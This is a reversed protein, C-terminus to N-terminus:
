DKKFDKVRQEESRKCVLIRGNKEAVIYGDLGQLVVSKAESTQVVCNTCDYLNVNGVIANDMVDKQLLGYLSDWNGLDSWGFDAPITYICDSKEMVAYDISIKECTPFIRAVVKSEEPTGFSVAIEDMQICLKIAYKRLENVITDINWVFIGSNWYFRGNEVYEKATEMDPKERFSHVRFVEKELQEETAQIYGYGPEPRNPKVGITVISHRKANVFMLAKRIVRQFEVTDMVLADSPTVVVNAKPYNNKIKWCAYAICPATNRAAPEILINEKPIQPLHERVFDVYTQNTVVWIHELPCIERFRNVTMQILSNGLGLVDIFQKPYEPTSLPWLRSGVGGAMIVLHTNNM